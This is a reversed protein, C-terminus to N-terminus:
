REESIPIVRSIKRNVEFDHYGEEPTEKLEELWKNSELFRVNTIKDEMFDEKILELCLDKKFM